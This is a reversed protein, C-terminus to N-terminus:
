PCVSFGGEVCFSAHVVRADSGMSGTDDIVEVAMRVDNDEALCCDMLWPAIGHAVYDDGSPRLNARREQTAILQGTSAVRTEFKLLVNEPHINRTRVSHWIHFGGNRGGGQPGLIIDVAQGETLPIFNDVGTGIEVEMTGADPETGGDMMSQPDSGCAISFLSTLLIIRQLNM